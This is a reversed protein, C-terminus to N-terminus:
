KFATDYNLNWDELKLHLNPKVVKRHMLIDGFDHNIIDWRIYDNNNKLEFKFAVRAKFSKQLKRFLLIILQGIILVSFFIFLNFCKFILCM